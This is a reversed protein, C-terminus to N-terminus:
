YPIVALVRSLIKLVFIHCTEESREKRPTKGKAERSKMFLVIATIVFTVFMIVVFVASAKTSDSKMTQYLFIQMNPASTGALNRILVYDGFIIGVALLSSVIIASLINPVVVRFFAYIKSAGLMEAAEILTPMNVARMGNRIGQYIYPLIVICYAGMLMVLRNSLISSSGVYLSLISVSLIVGQITYPIMCIIQVYKELKPFYIATVFLALLVIVITVIIPIISMAISRGVSALFNSDTFLDVYNHLTFGEPIVGTWKHFVSYIISIVLPILLYIMVLLMIAVSGASKKKM